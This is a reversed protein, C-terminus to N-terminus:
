APESGNGDGSLILKLSPPEVHRLNVNDVFMGLHRGIDALAARKDVLKVKKVVGPLDGTLEVVEFGAVAAAAEDPWDKVPLLSGDAKYLTRLDFFAMRAYQELVRDATIETRKARETMVNQIAQQVEVNKLLRQGQSYATKESYGARIAAQTANLDILYEDVFQRQKDSLKKGAM